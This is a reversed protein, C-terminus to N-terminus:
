IYIYDIRTCGLTWITKPPEDGVACLEYCLYMLYKNKNHSIHIHVAIKHTQEHETTTTATPKGM